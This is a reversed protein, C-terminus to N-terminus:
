RIRFCLLGPMQNSAENMRIAQKEFSRKIRTWNVFVDAAATAAPPKRKRSPIAFGSVLRLFVIAMRPATSNRNPLMSLNSLM